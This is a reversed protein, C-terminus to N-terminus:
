GSAFPQLAEHPVFKTAHGGSNLSIFCEYDAEFTVSANRTGESGSSQNGDQLYGLPLVITSRTLGWM